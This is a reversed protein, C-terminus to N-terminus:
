SAPRNGGASERDHEFDEEPTAEAGTRSQRKAFEKEVRLISQEVRTEAIARLQLYMLPAIGAAIRPDLKGAHVDAIL